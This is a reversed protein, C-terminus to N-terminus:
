SGTVSPKPTNDPRTGAYDVKRDIPLKGICPFRKQEADYAVKPLGGVFPLKAKNFDAM